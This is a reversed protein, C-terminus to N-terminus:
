AITKEISQIKPTSLPLELRATAGKGLGDSDLSIRGGIANVANAAAHMGFGHGYSKTTYGMTFIKSASAKDIGGGNDSILIEVSKTDPLRNAVIEIQGKERKADMISEAANKIFNTLVQLLVHQDQQLDIDNPVDASVEIRKRWRESISIRLANDISEKLNFEQFLNANRTSRQQSAIISTAHQLHESLSLLEQTYFSREDQLVQNLNELYDPLHSGRADNTLFDSLNEKNRSILDVAKEFSDLKSQQVRNNLVGVAITLSNMVNGVNHLVSTAVEAMGATRASHMLKGQTERLEELAVTLKSTKEELEKTRDNVERELVLSRKRYRISGLFSVSGILALVALAYLSYALPSSHVLGGVSIPLSVIPGPHDLDSRAQIEFVFDGFEINAVEITAKKQWASWSQSPDIRYHFEVGPPLEALSTTVLFRLSDNAQPKEPGGESIAHDFLIEGTGIKEIRSIIPSFSLNENIVKSADCLLLGASSSFWMKGSDEILTLKPSHSRYTDLARSELFYRNESSRLVLGVNERTAAWLRGFSDNWFSQISPIESFIPEFRDVLDFRGEAENLAYAHEDAIILIEGDIETVQAHKFPLGHEEEFVTTQYAGDNMIIRAIGAGRFEVWTSGDNFDHTETIHKEFAIKHPDNQWVNNRRQYIEVVNRNFASVRNVGRYPKSGRAHAAEAPSILQLDTGGSHVMLQDDVLMLVGDACSALLHTSKHRTGKLVRFESHNDTNPQDLQALIKRGTDLFLAGNHRLMRYTRADIGHMNSLRSTPSSMDLRVLQSELAVWIHKFDPSRTSNIAHVSFDSVVLDLRRNRKTTDASIHDISNAAVIILSGDKQDLIRTSHRSDFNPMSTLLNLREGDYLFFRGDKMIGMISGNAMKALHMIPRAPVISPRPYATEFGQEGLFLLDRNLSGLHLKGDFIVGNSTFQEVHEFREVSEDERDYVLVIRNGIFYAKDDHTVLSNIPTLPSEGKKTLTNIEILEYGDKGNPKLRGYSDIRRFYINGLPGIDIESVNGEIGPIKVWHAGDFRLIGSQDACYLFGNSDYAFDSVHPTLGIDIKDFIQYPVAGFFEPDLPARDQGVVPTVNSSITLFALFLPSTKTLLHWFM